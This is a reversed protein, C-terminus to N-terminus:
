VYPEAFRALRAACRPCRSDTAIVAKAKAFVSAQDTSGQELPLDASFEFDSSEAGEEAAEAIM